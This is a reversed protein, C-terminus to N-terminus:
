NPITIKTMQEETKRYYSTGNKNSKFVTRSNPGKTEHYISGDKGAKYVVSTGPEAKLETLPYETPEDGKTEGSWAAPPNVVLGVGMLILGSMVGAFISDGTSMGLNEWVYLGGDVM